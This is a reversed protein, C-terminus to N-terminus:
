SEAGRASSWQWDELRASLGAAVPNEEIYRIIRNREKEDRVWHDYSEQQWFEGSRHLRANSERASYGKVTKTIRSLDAQPAILIHVHNPM